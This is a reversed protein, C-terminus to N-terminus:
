PAGDRPAGVVDIEIPRQLQECEPPAVAESHGFYDRLAERLCAVAQEPTTGEGARDVEECHALWGADTQTLVASVRMHLFM